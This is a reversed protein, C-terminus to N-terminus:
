HPPASSFSLPLPMLDPPFPDAPLPEDSANPMNGPELLMMHGALSPGGPARLPGKVPCGGLPFSPISGLGESNM